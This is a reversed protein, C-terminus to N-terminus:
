IEKSDKIDGHGKSIQIAIGEKYEYGYGYDKYTDGNSWIEIKLPKKEDKPLNIGKLILSM